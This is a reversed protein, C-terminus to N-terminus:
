RRWSGYSVCDSRGRRGECYLTAGWVWVGFFACRRLIEIATTVEFDGKLGFATKFGVGAFDHIITPPITIRLGEPEERVLVEPKVNFLKIEPPVPKGRFDYYYESVQGDAARAADALAVNAAIRVLPQPNEVKASPRGGPGAKTVGLDTDMSHVLKVM